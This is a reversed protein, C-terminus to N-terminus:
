SHRRLPGTRPIGCGAALEDPSTSALSPCDVNADALPHSAMIARRRAHTAGAVHGACPTRAGIIVDLLTSSCLSARLHDGQHFPVVVAERRHGIGDDV